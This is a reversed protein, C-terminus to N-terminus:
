CLLNLTQLESELKETTAVQYRNNRTTTDPDGSGGAMELSQRLLSAPQIELPFSNDVDRSL